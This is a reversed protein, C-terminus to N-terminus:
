ITPVRQMETPSARRDTWHGTRIAMPADNPTPLAMSCDPRAAAKEPESTCKVRGQPGVAARAASYKAVITSLSSILLLAETARAKGNQRSVARSRPTSLRGNMMAMARALEFAKAEGM